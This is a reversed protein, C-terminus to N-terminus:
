ERVLEQRNMKTPQTSVSVASCAMLQRQVAMEAVM